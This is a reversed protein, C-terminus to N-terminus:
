SQYIFQEVIREAQALASELEDNVIALDFQNEFAMEEAAKDLRKQLSEESETNRARLRTHLAELSPPKIFVALSAEPYQKKINLAGLVDIDFVIHKGLAWLREVERRLTGYCSGPYVEEWELFADQSIFEQFQADSIFYYDQGDVEHPRRPRTTASISFALEEYEQLLHKVITTKGAGSPAAFLLLKSM